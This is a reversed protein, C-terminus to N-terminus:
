RIIGAGDVECSAGNQLSFSGDPTELKASLRVTARSSGQSRISAGEAQVVAGDPFWVLPLKVGNNGIRVIAWDGDDTVSYDSGAGAGWVAVLVNNPDYFRVALVDSSSLSPTPGDVTLIVEVNGDHGTSNQLPFSCDSIQVNRQAVQRDGPADFTNVPVPQGEATVAALLCKHGDGNGIDPATWSIPGILASEGPPVEVDGFYNGGTIDMWDSSLAAPNSLRVLARASQIPTCGFDNNVRVYIDYTQGPSMIAETAIADKDVPQGSPVVFIDPSEWFPENGANSPVIGLDTASDRVFLQASSTRCTGDTTALYQTYVLDETISRLPSPQGVIHLNNTELTVEITDLLAIDEFSADGTCTGPWPVESVPGQSNACTGAMLRTLVSSDTFTLESQSGLGLITGSADAWRGGLNLSDAKVVAYVGPDDALADSKDTWSLQAVIGVMKTGLEDEFVTAGIRANDMVQMGGPRDPVPYPLLGMGDGVCTTDYGAFVTCPDVGPEGTCAVNKDVEWIRLWGIRAAFHREAHRRM